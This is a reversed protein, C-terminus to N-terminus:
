YDTQDNQPRIAQEERSGRQRITPATPTLDFRVWKEITVGTQPSVDRVLTNLPGTAQASSLTEQVRYSPRGYRLGERLGRM